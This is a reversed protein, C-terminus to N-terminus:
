QVHALANDAIKNLINMAIFEDNSSSLTHFDPIQRIMSSMSKNFPMIAKLFKRKIWSDDTDKSGHDRRSVALAKLRQYLECPDEDENM